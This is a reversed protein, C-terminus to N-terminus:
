QVLEVEAFYQDMIFNDPTKYLKTNRVLQGTFSNYYSANSSIIRNKLRMESLMNAGATTQKMANEDIEFNDVDVMMMFTRDYQKERFVSKPIDNCLTLMLKFDDPSDAFAALLGQYVSSMLKVGTFNRTGTSISRLAAIFGRTEAESYQIFTEETINMGTLLHVYLELLFSTQLNSVVERGLARRVRYYPDTTLYDSMGDTNIDSALVESYEKDEDFDYFQFANLLTSYNLNNIISLEYKEYGRAFLSLDFKYTIPKYIIGEDQKDLKHISIQALDTTTRQLNGKYADTKDLRAGLAAETFGKPIGVSIIKKRGTLFSHDRLAIKLAAYSKDSIAKGAPLYFDAAVDGTPNYLKRKDVITKLINKATRTSAITRANNTTTLNLANIESVSLSTVSSFNQNIRDFFALINGIIQEEEILKKDYDAIIPNSYAGNGIYQKISDSTSSLENGIYSLQIYQSSESKGGAGDILNYIVTTRAFQDTLNSFLEFALLLFGSMTMANYRSVSSNDLLHHAINNTSAATFLTKAFDITNKFLNQNGKLADALRSFQQVQVIATNNNQNSTTKSQTKAVPLGLQQKQATIINAAANSKQQGINQKSSASLPPIKGLVLRKVIEIQTSLLSSINAETIRDSFGQINQGSLEGFLLDRFKDTQATQQTVTPRADYLTILLLLKYVEFKISPDGNSVLLMVFTLLSTPDNNDKRIYSQSDNYLRLANKLIARPDLNASTPDIGSQKLLYNDFINKAKNFRTGFIDRYSKYTDFNGNLISDSFYTAGPVFVTENDGVVQRGEFPLIVVNGAGGKIYFLSSLSNQGLPELFIDSPVRGIINDFPNGANSIGFYRTDELRYKGMGKSVKFEKSLLNIIFKFRNRSGSPLANLLGNMDVTSNMYKLRIAAPTYALNDGYTKDITIADQITQKKITIPNSSLVRREEDTFGDLLNFSCKELIGTLDALVQYIIKTDSFITYASDSFLMRSSMFKQLGVYPSGLGPTTDAGLSSKIDLIDSLTKTRRILADLSAVTAAANAIDDSLQRGIQTLVNGLTSAGSGLSNIVIYKRLSDRVNSAQNLDDFYRGFTTLTRGGNDYIPRFSILSILDCRLSSVDLIARGNSFTYTDLTLTEETIDRETLKRLPAPRPTFIIAPMIFPYSTGALAVIPSLVTTRPALLSPTAMMTTASQQQTVSAISQRQSTAEPLLAAQAVDGNVAATSTFLNNVTRQTNPVPSSAPTMSVGATKTPNGNRTAAM